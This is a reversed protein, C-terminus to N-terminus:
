RRLNFNGNKDLTRASAIPMPRDLDRGPEDCTLSVKRRSEDLAGEIVGRPERPPGPSVTMNQTVWRM